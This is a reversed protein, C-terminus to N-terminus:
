YKINKLITDLKADITRKLQAPNLLNYIQQLEQKISQSATNLEIIRSYPTKSIVDGKKNIRLLAQFFNHYLRLENKCLSLLMELESDGLSQVSYKPTSVLPVFDNFKISILVPFRKYIKELGSQWAEKSQGKIMEIEWWGTVTDICSIANMSQGTILGSQDSHGALYIEINGIKFREQKYNIRFLSKLVRWMKRHQTPKQAQSLVSDITRVGVQKLKEIVTRNYKLEGIRELRGTESILLPQLRLGCPYNFISWCELLAKQFVADYYVPKIRKQVEMNEVGLESLHKLKSILYKRNLKLDKCLKDLFKGKDKKSKYDYKADELTQLLHENSISM